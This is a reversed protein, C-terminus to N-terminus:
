MGAMIRLEVTYHRESKVRVDEGGSGLDAKSVKVVCPSGQVGFWPSLLYICAYPAADKVRRIPPLLDTISFYKVTIFNKHIPISKLIGYSKNFAIPELAIGIVGNVSPSTISSSTSAASISNITRQPDVDIHVGTM